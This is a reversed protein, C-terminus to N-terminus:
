LSVSQNFTRVMNSKEVLCEAVVRVADERCKVIEVRTDGVDMLICEFSNIVVGLIVHVGSFVRQGTPLGQQSYVDALLAIHSIMSDVFCCVRGNVENLGLWRM